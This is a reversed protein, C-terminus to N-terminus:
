FDEAAAITLFLTHKWLIWSEKELPKGGLHHQNRTYMSNFSSQIINAGLIQWKVRNFVRNFRKLLINSTM